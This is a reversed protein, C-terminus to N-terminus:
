CVYFRTVSLLGYIAPVDLLFSWVVGLAVCWWGRRKHELPRDYFLWILFWWEAVRVPALGVMYAVENGHNTFSAIALQAGFYLAGVVMGILTRVAGVKVSSHQPREYRRALFHAALSYGAFKVACFVTYGLVPSDIGFAM